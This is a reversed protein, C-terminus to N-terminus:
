WTTKINHQKIVWSLILIPDDGNELEGYVMTVFLLRHYM